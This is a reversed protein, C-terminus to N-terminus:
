FIKEKCLPCEKKRKLWKIICDKCYIHKCQLEIIYTKNEIFELTCIVCNDIDYNLERNDSSINNGKLKYLKSELKNLINDISNINNNNNSQNITNHREPIRFRNHRRAGSYRGGYILNGNLDYNSDLIRDITNGWNSGNNLNSQDTVHAALIRSNNNYSRNNENIRRRRNVLSYNYGNISANTISMYSQM